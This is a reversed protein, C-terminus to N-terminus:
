FASQFGDKIKQQGIDTKDNLEYSNDIFDDISDAVNEIDNYNRISIKYGYRENYDDADGKACDYGYNRDGKFTPKETYWSVVRRLRLPHHDVVDYFYMNDRDCWNKEVTFRMNDERNRMIFGTYWGPALNTM